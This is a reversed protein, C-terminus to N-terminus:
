PFVKGISFMSNGYVLADRLVYETYEKALKECRDLLTQIEPPYEKEIRGDPFLTMKPISMNVLDSKMKMFPSIAEILIKRVDKEM